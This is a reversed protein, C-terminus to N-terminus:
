HSLTVTVALPKGPDVHSTPAQYAQYGKAQVTYDFYGSPISRFDFKGNADTTRTLVVDVTVLADALPQNTGADLVVGSFSSYTAGPPLASDNCAALVIVAALAALLRVLKMAVM